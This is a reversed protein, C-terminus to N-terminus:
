DDDDSGDYSAKQDPLADRELRKRRAERGAELTPLQAGPSGAGANPASSDVREGGREELRRGIEGLLEHDTATSVSNIFDGSTYGLGLAEIAKGLLFDSSVNFAKAFGEVTAKDPLRTLTERKDTVYKSVLARSLGSAAVVDRNRLKREDMETRIFAALAHAM